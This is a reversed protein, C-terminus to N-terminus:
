YNPLTDAPWDKQTMELYFYQVFERDRTFEEADTVDLSGSCLEDKLFCAQRRSFYHYQYGEWIVALLMPHAHMHHILAKWTRWEGPTLIHDRSYDFANLVLYFNTETYAYLKRLARTQERRTPDNFIEADFMSHYLEAASKAQLANQDKTVLRLLTTSYNERRIEHPVLAWLTDLVIDKDASEDAAEDATAANQTQYLQARISSKLTRNNARLQFIVLFLGVIAVPVSFLQLKAAFSTKTGLDPDLMMGCNGCYRKSTKTGLDPDLMMGCNGCYRKGRPNDAGCKENPCKITGSAPLSTESPMQKEMM